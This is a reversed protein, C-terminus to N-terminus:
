WFLPGSPLQPIKKEAVSKVEFKQDAAVALSTASACAFMTVALAFLRHTMTVGNLAVHPGAYRRGRVAMDAISAFRVQCKFRRALRRLVRVSGPGTHRRDDGEERFDMKALACDTGAQSVYLRGM